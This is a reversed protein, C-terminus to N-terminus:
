HEFGTRYESMKVAWLWGSKRYQQYIETQIEDVKYKICYSKNEVIVFM